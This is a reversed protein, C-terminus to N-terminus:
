RFHGAPPELGQLVELGAPPEAEGAMWKEPCQSSRYIRGNRLSQPPPPPCTPPASADRHARDAVLRPRPARLGPSARGKPTDADLGQGLGWAAVAARLQGHGDGDPGGLRSPGAQSSYIRALKDRSGLGSDALRGSPKPYGNNPSVLRSLPGEALVQTGTGRPGRGAGM